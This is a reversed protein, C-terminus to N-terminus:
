VLEFFLQRRLFTSLDAVAPVDAITLRRPAALKSSLHRQIDVALQASVSAQRLFRRLVKLKRTKGAMSAKMSMMNASLSSVLTSFFILGSVLCLINLCREATNLPFVQMSGPTMQTM